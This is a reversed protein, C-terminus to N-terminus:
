GMPIIHRREFRLGAPTRVVVDIYEGVFEVHPTSRQGDLVYLTVYATGTIRGDPQAQYRLNSLQHHTRRNDAARLDAWQRFGDVDLSDPGLGLILSTETLLEAAERGHGHDLRYAWEALLTAVAAEDAACLSAAQQEFDREQHSTLFLYDDRPPAYVDINLAVQDGVAIATHPANAPIVLAEGARVVYTHGDVEFEMAGETVIALQDFAHSHLPQREMGPDMWNFTVLSHDGRIATRQWTGGLLSERDLTAFSIHQTKQPM